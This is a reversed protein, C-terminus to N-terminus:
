IFNLSVMIDSKEAENVDDTRDPLMEIASLETRSYSVLTDGPIETSSNINLSKLQTGDTEVKLCTIPVSYFHDLQDKTLNFYNMVQRLFVFISNLLASLFM